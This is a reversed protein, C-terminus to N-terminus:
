LRPLMSIFHSSTPHIVPNSGAVEPASPRRALSQRKLSGAFRDEVPVRDTVAVCYVQLEAQAVSPSHALSSQNSGRLCLRRSVPLRQFTLWKSLGNKSSTRSHSYEQRVCRQAGVLSALLGIQSSHWLSLRSPRFKRVLSTQAMGNTTRTNPPISPTKRPHCERLTCAKQSSWGRAM